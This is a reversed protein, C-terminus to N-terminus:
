NIKEKVVSSHATDVPLRWQKSNTYIALIAFQSFAFATIVAEFIFPYRKPPQLFLYLVHLMVSFLAYFSMIVRWFKPFRQAIYSDRSGDEKSKVPAHYLLFFLFLMAIYCITLGDRRLLPYMSLMSNIILWKFLFPEELALLSAPLLPLLVSKEHVQYSFLYFAFSSNLLAYLFGRNSPACIQQVMSPLSATLTAGLAFYSLASVSFRQKWKILLSTCCWFSSVYDEYIGRQLPALRALVELIAEKSYLFPWWIVTFAGLVILGLRAVNFIPNQSRLCKGLLHAFFAPAYYASMQKHNLALCFLVCAVLERRSIVAAIAGVTLGLSICNYQFHGHDILVACPQLLVMVIAWVIDEDKKGNYYVAIFYLAAPFFIVADSTLVTWRMLLKSRPTEYGRSTHLAVSQPDLAQLALGHTYSQYATLPPYDLGWYSLDNDTTNKYWEKLPTHVTIEMWHRQAEYDGYRPPNGAGSYPHLSVLVRVLFAFAITSSIAFKKDLVWVLSPSDGHSGMKM